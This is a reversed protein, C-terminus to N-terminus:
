EKVRAFIIPREDISHYKLNFGSTYGVPVGNDDTYIRMTGRGVGTRKKGDPAWRTDKKDHPNDASDLIVVAWQTTGEIIPPTPARKYPKVDVIMIHGQAQGFSNSCMQKCTFLFFDGPMVDNITGLRNFGYGHMFAEQYNEVRLYKKWYTKSEILHVANSGAKNLVAGVFGTCHTNVSREKNFWTGDWHVGEPGTLAYRNNEPKVTEVLERALELHKPVPAEQAFVSASMLAALLTPIFKMLIEM